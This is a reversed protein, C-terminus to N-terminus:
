GEGLKKFRGDRYRYLANGHTLNYTIIRKIALEYIDVYKRKTGFRNTVYTRLHIGRFTYKDVREEWIPDSLDTTM